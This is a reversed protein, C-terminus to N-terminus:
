IQYWIYSIECAPLNLGFASAYKGGAMAFCFSFQNPSKHEPEKLGHHHWSSSLPSFLPHGLISIKKVKYPIEM